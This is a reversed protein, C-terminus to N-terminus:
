STRYSFSNVPPDIKQVELRGCIKSPGNNLVKGWFIVLVQCKNECCWFHLKKNLIEETFTILDATKQPNHKSFSCYIYSYIYIYIYIYM